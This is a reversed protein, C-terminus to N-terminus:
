EDGLNQVDIVPTVLRCYDLEWTEVLEQDFNSNERVAALAEYQARCKLTVTDGPLLAAGKIDTSKLLVIEGIPALSSNSEQVHLRILGKGGFEPGYYSGSVFTGTGTPVGSVSGRAAQTQRTISGVDAIVQGTITYVADDVPIRAETRYSQSSDSDPRPAEDVPVCGAVVLVALVLLIRLKKM